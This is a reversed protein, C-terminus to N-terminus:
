VYIQKEKVQSTDQQPIGYWDSLCFCIVRKQEPVVPKSDQVEVEAKQQQVGEQKSERNSVPLCYELLKGTLIGFM